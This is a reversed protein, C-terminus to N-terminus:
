NLATNNFTNANYTVDNAALASMLKSKDTYTTGKYTVSALKSCNYFSSTGISTLNDPLTVSVLDQSLQFAGDGIVEVQNPISVNILGTSAYMGLKIETANAPIMLESLKSCENFMQTGYSLEHSPFTVSTLESCGRFLLDGITTVSEPIVVNKLASCKYFVSKEITTVSNPIIIDTLSTDGFFLQSSLTVLNEPLKVTTLSTCKGFAGSEIARVSNPINIIQLNSCGAFAQMGITVVGDPITVSRLETCNKFTEKGIAIVKKNKGNEVVHDPIIVDGTTAIGYTSLNESSLIVSNEKEIEFNINGSWNGATLSSADILGNATTWTSVDTYQFITKDISVTGTVDTKGNRDHLIVSSDPIVNLVENACLDGSTSVTFSAKKDSGLIISKPITVVFSAEQEYKVVSSGYKPETIYQENSGIEAALTPLTPTLTVISALLLLGSIAKRRM